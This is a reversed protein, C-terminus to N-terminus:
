APLPAAAMAPAPASRPLGARALAGGFREGPLWTEVTARLALLAPLDIGTEFGLRELLFVTDELAINGTAGPAFPCGGLGGLSADFHRVGAELAACVNALGLGRTDHFHASLPVQGAVAAVAPFLVAVAAPDAYGVTDALMIEEAGISLLAEAVEVVRAVAVPGQMTCGFATAVAVSLAIGTGDPRADRAERIRAYEAIADDTTRRANALSHAESASVVYGVLTFGAEFARQAGKLNVVLASARLGPLALAGRGVADADVFQPVVKPPVFSTVEMERVGAALEARCWALKHEAPLVSAVMQLGDRLGVERVAVYEAM